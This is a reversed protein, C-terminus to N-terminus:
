RPAEIKKDLASAVKRIGSVIQEFDVPTIAQAGDCLARQADDHVDILVASAGVAVSALSMPSVSDRRGTGHSPDIVVPLHSLAKVVPVASLDVVNRTHRSDFSRIGRECLLIKTNGGAMVYEAAMLWEDITASMGRKLLVPKDLKGVEKLLSFNQMNRTGIQIIDAYKYVQELSRSDLAETIIPMGTEVSARKLIKLGEDGMGQFNYPSSRPKYAGGRLVNAGAKRVARAIRLTQEESEVACPGAMIVFHGPGFVVDKVRIETDDKHFDRSVLQYPNMVAIVDVVGNYSKFEEPDLKSDDGLVNITVRYLGRVIHAECGAALVRERVKEVEDETHEAKFIILM